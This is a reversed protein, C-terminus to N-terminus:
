RVLVRALLHTWDLPMLGSHWVHCDPCWRDGAAIHSRYEDLTIGMRTAAARHGRVSDACIEAKTRM